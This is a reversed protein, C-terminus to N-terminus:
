FTVLVVRLCARFLLLKMLSSVWPLSTEGLAWAYFASIDVRVQSKAEMPLGEGHDWAQYISSYTSRYSSPFSTQLIYIRRWAKWTPFKCTQFAWYPLHVSNRPVHHTSTMSAASRIVYYNRIPSRAGSLSWIMRWYATTPSSMPKPWQARAM